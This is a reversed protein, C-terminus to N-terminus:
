TCHISSTDHIRTASNSEYSARSCCGAEESLFSQDRQSWLECEMSYFVKAVKMATKMDHWLRHQFNDLVVIRIGVKYQLYDLFAGNIGGQDVSVLIPQQTIDFGPPLQATTTGKLTNTVEFHTGQQHWREEATLKDLHLRSDPKFMEISM